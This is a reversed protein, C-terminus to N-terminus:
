FSAAVGDLYRAHGSQQLGLEHGPVQDSVLLLRQIRTSKAMAGDVSSPRRELAPRAAPASTAMRTRVTRGLPDTRRTIDAVAGADDRTTQAGFLNYLPFQASM